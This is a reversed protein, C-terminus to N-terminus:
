GFAPNDLAGEGPEVAAAPQGLIPFIEVALRKGKQTESGDAQHQSLEAVGGLTGPCVRIILFEIPRDLHYLIRCCFVADFEGYKQVNWVNDRAFRLNPLDVHAKVHECAAFNNKRVEIGLAEFGMRAFEVTYGGELCGLDVIRKGSLDGHFTVDIARKAALFWPSESLLFGMEPKTLTGDDLQINHYSFSPM